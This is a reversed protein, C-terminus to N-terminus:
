MGMQLDLTVQGADTQINVERLLDLFRKQHSEKILAEIDVSVQDRYFRIESPLANLLSGFKALLVHNELFARITFSHSLDISRFLRLKLTLPWPWLTTKLHVDVRNKPEISLRCYSVMKSEGLEAAVIENILSEPITISANVVFGALESDDLKSLREFLTDM